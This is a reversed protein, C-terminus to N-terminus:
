LIAKRFRLMGGLLLAMTLFVTICIPLTMASSAITNTLLASNQSTLYNPSFQRIMPFIDLAFLLFLVGVTTLLGGYSGSILCSSFLLLSQLFAGFLWLSFLSLFLSPALVTGFLFYTYALDIAVALWYCVSFAILSATYKSLIVADRSLGKSLPMILTGKAIESSLNTAFLLLLVILGMQTINKFFQAYADLYSSPPLTISINGMPIQSMIQPMVKALGPSMFGFLVFVLVLILAKYSRLLETIEKIFFTKFGNM